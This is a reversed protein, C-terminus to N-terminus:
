DFLRARRPIQTLFKNAQGLIVAAAVPSRVQDLWHRVRQVLVRTNARVRSPQRLERAKRSHRRRLPM